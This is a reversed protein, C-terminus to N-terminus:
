GKQKVPCVHSLIIDVMNSIIEKAPHLLRPQTPHALTMDWADLLVVGRMGRLMARLVTDLQLSYWDSNYLSYNPDTAQPNATRVVVLTGPARDLLRAVARRVHRLRRIYVEVPFTSFHSWLSLAVITDRGGRLADIRNAVYEIESSQLTNFRIPPGHSHFTLLINNASDVALFPGVNKQSRLSFEPVFATLYEFWQRATSDGFMYVLKGKLCKKIAPANNFHKIPEGSLTRWSGQHYYGSPVFKAQDQVLSQGKEAPLITINDMGQAKVPVQITSSTFLLSENPYLLNKKYGSKFHNVRRNCGLRKPKYCYWPEGTQPDTYDCLSAKGPGTPLCMDCQTTESLGGSRFLSKFYVRDSQEKRLRRLVGVGESSHVLTIEVQAAGAWLLPLEVEYTGNQRDVVRGSAGAGLQVSRIRALLFDGGYSKPRGLFDHMHVLVELKGGVQWTTAQGSANVPPQIVFYSHAPDSSQNVPVELRLPGPWAISDLLTRQEQAEEPTPQQGVHPCSKQSHLEPPLTHLYTRSTLNASTNIVSSSNIRPQPPRLSSVPESNFRELFHINHLILFVGTIMLFFFFPSYRFLTGGM